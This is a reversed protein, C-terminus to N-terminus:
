FALDLCWIENVKKAFAPLRKFLQKAHRCKTYFDNGHPFYAVNKDVTWNSKFIKLQDMQPKEMKTCDKYIEKIRNQLSDLEM